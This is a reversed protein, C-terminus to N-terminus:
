EMAAERLSPVLELLTAVPLGVINAYDGEHHEVLRAGEGQIAYAGAKDYSEGCALYAELEAESLPKFTVESTESFTKHGMSVGDTGPDLMWVSVGTIVQHTRGSLKRLMGKAESYSHPKGFIVGEHVVMTDAGIVATTEQLECASSDFALLDQVVTAAKRKAVERAAQSADAMLEDDLTEDAHSVCVEFKLGAKKLLDSRRPSASALIIRM